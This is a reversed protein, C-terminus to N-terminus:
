RLEECDAETYVRENFEQYTMYGYGLYRLKQGPARQYLFGFGNERLTMVEIYRTDNLQYCRSTEPRASPTDFIRQLMAGIVMSSVCVVALLVPDIKKM